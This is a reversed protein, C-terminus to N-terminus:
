FNINHKSIFEYHAEMDKLSVMSPNKRNPFLFKVEEPPLCSNEIETETISLFYYVSALIYCDKLAGHLSREVKIKYRKALADLTNNASYKKRALLLTDIVPNRISKGPSIRNLESKIMSMDFSANHAVLTSNGLFKEIDPWCEMFTPKGILFENTIGHIKIAEESIIEQPNIYIQLEEGTPQKDFLELCAIEVIRDTSTNLGTTEVDLIIERM